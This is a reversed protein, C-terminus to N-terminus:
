FILSNSIESGQEGNNAVANKLSRGVGVRVRTM